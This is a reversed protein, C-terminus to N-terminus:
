RDHKKIPQAPVVIFPKHPREGQPEDGGLVTATAPGVVTRAQAYGLFITKM